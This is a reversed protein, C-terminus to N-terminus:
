CSLLRNLNAGVQENLVRKHRSYYWRRALSLKFAWLNINSCCLKHKAMDLSIFYEIAPSGGTEPNNVFKHILCDVGEVFEYKEIRRKIWDNFVQKNLNRHSICLLKFVNLVLLM